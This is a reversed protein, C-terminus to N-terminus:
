LVIILIIIISAFLWDVLFKLFPLEFVYFGIDRGLIPDSTGFPAGYLGYLWIEWRAGAFLGALLGVLGAAAIGLPKFRVPDMTVPQPGQVTAFTFRWPRLSRLAFVLNGALIPQVDRVFDIKGDAPFSSTKVLSVPM